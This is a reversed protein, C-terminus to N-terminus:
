GENAGLCLDESVADQAPLRCFSRNATDTGGSFRIQPPGPALSLPTCRPSGSRPCRTGLATNEPHSWPPGPPSGPLPTDARATRRLRRRRGKRPWVTPSRNRPPRSPPPRPFFPASRLQLPALVFRCRIINEPSPRDTQPQVRLPETSRDHPGGRARPHQTPRRQAHRPDARGAFWQLWSGPLQRRGRPPQPGSM